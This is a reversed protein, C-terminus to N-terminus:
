NISMTNRTATNSKRNTDRYMILPNAHATSKQRRDDRRSIPLPSQTIIIIVARAEPDKGRFICKPFLGLRSLSARNSPREFVNTRNNGDAARTNIWERFLESSFLRSARRYEKGLSYYHCPYAIYLEYLFMERSKLTKSCVFDGRVRSCM